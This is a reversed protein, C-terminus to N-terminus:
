LMLSALPRVGILLVGALLPMVVAILVAAVLIEVLCGSILPLSAPLLISLLLRTEAMAVGIVVIRKSASCEIRLVISCPAVPM